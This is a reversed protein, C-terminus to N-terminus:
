KSFGIGSPPQPYNRASSQAVKPFGQPWIGGDMLSSGCHERMYGRDVKTSECQVVLYLWSARITRLARITGSCRVECSSWGHSLAVPTSDWLAAAHEAPVGASNDAKLLLTSDVVHHFVRQKRHTASLVHHACGPEM